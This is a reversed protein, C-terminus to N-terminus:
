NWESQEITNKEKVTKNWPNPGDWAYTAGFTVVTM